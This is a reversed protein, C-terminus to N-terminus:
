RGSTASTSSRCAELMPMVFPVAFGFVLQVGVNTAMRLQNYRANGHRRLYYIAGGSVGLTYLAGYLYWKTRLGLAQASM